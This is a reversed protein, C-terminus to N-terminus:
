SFSLHSTDAAAHYCVKRICQKILEMDGEGAANLLLATADFCVRGSAKKEDKEKANRVLIGKKEKKEDKSM